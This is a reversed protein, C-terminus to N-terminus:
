LAVSPLSNSWRLLPGSDRASLSASSWPFHLLVSYRPWREGRADCHVALEEPNPLFLKEEFADGVARKSGLRLGASERRWLLGRAIQILDPFQAGVEQPEIIDRGFPKEIQCGFVAQFQQHINGPGLMQTEKFGPLGLLVGVVSNAFGHKIAFAM